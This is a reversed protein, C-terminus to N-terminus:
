EAAVRKQKPERGKSFERQVAHLRLCAYTALCIGGAALVCGILLSVRKNMTM